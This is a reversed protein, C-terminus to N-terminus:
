CGGDMCGPIQLQHGHELLAEQGTVGFDCGWAGLAQISRFGMRGWRRHRNQLSPENGDPRPSAQELLLLFVVLPVKPWRAKVMLDKAAHASATENNEPAQLPSCLFDEEPPKQKHEKMPEKAPIYHM